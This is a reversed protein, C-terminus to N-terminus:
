SSPELLYLGFLSRFPPIFVVSLQLLLSGFFALWLAPHRGTKIKVISDHSSQFGLAAFLQTSSLAVFAMTIAVEQSSFVKIGIMFAVLTILGDCLGIFGVTLWQSKDLLPVKSDRPVRAMLNRKEPKVGLALVPFTDTVLNIWLIHM